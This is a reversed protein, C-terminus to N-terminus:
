KRIPKNNDNMKLHKKIFAYKSASILAYDDFTGTGYYAAVSDVHFLYPTISDGYHQLAAVFIYSYAPLVRDDEFATMVLKSSYEM